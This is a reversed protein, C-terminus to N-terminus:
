GDSDGTGDGAEMVGHLVFARLSEIVTGKSPRAAGPPLVWPEFATSLLVLWVVFRTTLPESFLPAFRGPFGAARATAMAHLEAYFDELRGQAVRVAEQAEPDGRASLLAVVADGQESMRDYLDDLFGELLTENPHPRGIEPWWRRAFDGVLDVFPAVVAEAFLDAKSGFHRYIATEATGAAEAIERTTTRAFGHRAFLRAAAALLAARVDSSTRRQREFPGSVVMGAM